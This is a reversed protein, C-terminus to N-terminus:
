GPNTYEPVLAGFRDRTLEEGTLIFAFALSQGCVISKKIKINPNPIPKAM